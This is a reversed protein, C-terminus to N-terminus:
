ATSQATPKGTQLDCAEVWRALLSLTALRELAEQEDLEDLGHAAPNRITMQVGPAFQRLGDNMTKIDRNAPDGPWRLRPQGPLPTNDSFTQQWLATEAVDNRGTTSKVHAVLAEAATGVAARYHRDRWLARAAGWILPHMAAAGVAPPAEAEAKVIMSELRGLMQESAGLVDNAELLPKPMTITEWAAVPDVSGAGQVMVAMGTLAPAAAARGAARNVRARLARLRELDVGDRRLVAPALGRAMHENEVHLELFAHLADRFDVVAQAIARLYDPNDSANVGSAQWGPAVALISPRGRPPLPQLFSTPVLVAPRVALTRLSQVRATGRGPPLPELLTARPPGVQDRRVAAPRTRGARGSGPTGRRLRQVEHSSTRLRRLPAQYAARTVFCDPAEAACPHLGESRATRPWPGEFGDASRGQCRWTIM